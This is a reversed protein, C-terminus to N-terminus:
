KDYKNKNQKAIRESAAIQERKVNRDAAKNYTDANLKEKEIERKSQEISLKANNIESSSSDDDTLISLDVDVYKLKMDLLYQAEASLRDQEGKAAIEKLKNEIKSNELQADLNRLDEEHKRKIEAYKNIATKIATTNNSGIAASAMELDGNQAASFAWDKYQNLKQSEVASNKVSVGYQSSIHSNIDLSLYKINSEKDRYSTDLGDIYALKTYDIDAQYDRTRFKDFMFTIIVSGMASRTIAEKTTTAGASQAIDGYRQQSMDVSERAEQKMSDILGTMETIYSTMSANLMRINAAKQNNVDESDDFALVGDAAMKYIIDEADDNNDPSLLSKPALLISMKNKAIIMERHYSFINRLIQFPTVIEVISFQGM